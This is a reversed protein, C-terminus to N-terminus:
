FVATCQLCHGAVNCHVVTHFLLSNTCYTQIYLRSSSTNRFICEKSSTEVLILCVVFTILTSLQRSILTASIGGTTRNTQPESSHLSSLSLPPPPPPPPTFLLLSPQTLGVLFMDRIFYRAKLFTSSSGPPEKGAASFYWHPLTHSHTPSHTLAYTHSPTLPHTLSHSLTQTTLLIM